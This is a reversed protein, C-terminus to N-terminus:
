EISEEKTKTKDRKQKPEGAEQTEEAEKEDLKKEEALEKETIVNEKALKANLVVIRKKKAETLIRVRKRKGVTHAIRVAQTKPDTNKLQEANYVLVEEYGSPHLGRSAKPGRYGVSAGPPWGAYKLRVKHDLGSPKRWNKKLRVYRWSEPRVFKPKKQKMRKRLKLLGNVNKAAKETM